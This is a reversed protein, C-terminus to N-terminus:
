LQNVLVLNVSLWVLSHSVRVFVRATYRYLILLHLIAVDTYASPKTFQRFRRIGLLIYAFAEIILTRSVSLKKRVVNSVQQQVEKNVNLPATPPIAQAPSTNSGAVSQADANEREIPSNESTNSM